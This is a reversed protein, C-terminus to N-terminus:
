RTPQVPLRLRRFHWFWIAAPRYIAHAFKTFPLLVLLEMALVVHVLFVGYWAASTTPLYTAVTLAFGTVATIWLMLLFVLDPGRTHAYYRQTATTPTSRAPHLRRVLAVTTGYTFVLGSLIGLLRIPSWPAVHAYPDKFLFDLATAAGLGVFGGMISLHVFWRRLPMLGQPDDASCSRQRRHDVVEALTLGLARSAAGLPFVGPEENPQTAGLAPARALTWFMNVLVAVSLMGLLALLVLGVDHLVGFPVFFHLMGATSFRGAPLRPARGLLVAAFFLALVSMAAATFAGSLTLRRSLGSPDLRAIAFRRAAAMFEAPNAQRPCTESCEGCHHCLWLEKCAVLHDAKGLRAYRIMRRPFADDGSSLPCTATCTGCDFCAAADVAGYRQLEPLLSATVRVTM